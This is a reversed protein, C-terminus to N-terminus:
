LLHALQVPKEALLREFDLDELLNQLLRSGLFTVAESATARDPRNGTLATAEVM